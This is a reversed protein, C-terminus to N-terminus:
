CLGVKRPQTIPHFRACTVGLEMLNKSSLQLHKKSCQSKLLWQKKKSRALQSSQSCALHWFHKSLHPCLQRGSLKPQRPTLGSLHNSNTRRLSLSSLSMSSSQKKKSAALLSCPSFAWPWFRNLQSRCSQRRRDTLATVTARGKRKERVGKRACSAITVWRSGLGLAQPEAEAAVHQNVCKTSPNGGRGYHASNRLIIHCSLKMRPNKVIASYQRTEEM